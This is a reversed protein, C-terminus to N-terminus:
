RCTYSAFLMICMELCLKWCHNGIAIGLGVLLFRAASYFGPSKAPVVVQITLRKMFAFNNDMYLLYSHANTSSKGTCM